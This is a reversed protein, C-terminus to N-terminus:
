FSSYNRGKKIDNIRHAAYSASKFFKLERNVEIAKQYLAIADRPRSYSLLDAMQSYTHGLQGKVQDKTAPTKIITRFNKVNEDYDKLIKKCCSKKKALIKLLDYRRNANRYIEELDNIRALEHFGDHNRQCNEIAKYIIKEANGKLVFGRCLKSLENILLDSINQHGKAEVKECLQSTKDFFDQVQGSKVFLDKVMYFDDRVTGISSTGEMCKQSFNHYSEKFIDNLCGTKLIVKM